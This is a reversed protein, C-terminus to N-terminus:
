QEKRRLAITVGALAIGAIGLAAWLMLDSTDGTKPTNSDNNSAKVTVTTRNTKAKDKTTSNSPVTSTSGGGTTVPTTQTPPTTTTGNVTRYYNLTLVNTAPDIVAVKTVTSKSADYGYTNGNYVSWTDEPSATITEDVNVTTADKVQVPDGNDKTYNAGNDTSTFYNTVVTYSTRANISFNVGFFLNYLEYSNGMYPANFHCALTIADSTTKKNVKGFKNNLATEITGDSTGHMYSGITNAFYAYDMITEDGYNSNANGDNKFEVTGDDKVNYLSFLKNYFYNYLTADVQSDTSRAIAAKGKLIDILAAEPLDQMSAAGAINYKKAYYKTYYQALTLNNKSLYDNLAKIKDADRMSYSTIYDETKGTQEMIAAIVADNETLNTTSGFYKVWEGNVKGYKTKYISQGDFGVATTKNEPLLSKDNNWDKTAVLMSDKLYSYDVDSNNIVNIKLFVSDSPVYEANDSIAADYYPDFSIKGGKYGKPIVYTISSDGLIYYIKGPDTAEAASSIAKEAVNTTGSTGKYKGKLDWKSVPGKPMWVAYYTIYNSTNKPVLYNNSGTSGLASGRSWGIFDYGSRVPDAAPAEVTRVGSSNLSTDVAKFVSETGDNMYFSVKYQEAKWIAYFTTNRTITTTKGTILSTGTRSTSWGLFTYGTERDRVPADPLNIVGSKDANIKKGYQSNSGYNLRFTATYQVNGPSKLMKSSVSAAPAAAATQEPAGAATSDEAATTSNGSAEKGEASAAESNTGQAETSKAEANSDVATSVSEAAVTESGSGSTDTDNSAFVGAISGFSYMGVVTVALIAALLKKKMEKVENVILRTKLFVARAQACASSLVDKEVM